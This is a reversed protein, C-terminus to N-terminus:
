DQREFGGDRLQPGEGSGWEVGDFDTQPPPRRSDVLAFMDVHEALAPLVGSLYRMVGLPQGQLPRGDIAVRLRRM